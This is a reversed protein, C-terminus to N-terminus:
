VSCRAIGTFKRDDFVNNRGYYSIHPEFFYNIGEERMKTIESIKNLLLDKFGIPEFEYIYHIETITTKLLKNINSSCLNQLVIKETRSVPNEDNNIFYFQVKLIDDKFFIKLTEFENKFTEELRNNKLGFFFMVLYENQREPNAFNTLIHENYANDVFNPHNFLRINGGNNNLEYTNFLIGDSIHNENIEPFLSKWLKKRFNFNPNNLNASIFLAVRSM